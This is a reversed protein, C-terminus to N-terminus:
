APVGMVDLLGCALDGRHVEPGLRRRARTPDERAYLGNGGLRRRRAARVRSPSLRRDPLGEHLPPDLGRGRARDAGAAGPRLVPANMLVLNVDARPNAPTGGRPLLM